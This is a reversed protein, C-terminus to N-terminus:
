AGMRREAACMAQYDLEDRLWREMAQQDEKDAPMPVVRIGHCQYCPVDYVGNLYDERFDRDEMEWTLGSADISPNVHKGKGECTPCVTYEVPILRPAREEDEYEDWKAVALMRRPDFDEYWDGTNGAIVRRDLDYNAEEIYRSPRM